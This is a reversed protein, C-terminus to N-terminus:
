KKPLELCKKYSSELKQKFDIIIDRQFCKRVKNVISFHVVDMFVSMQM